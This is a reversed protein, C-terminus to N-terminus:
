CPVNYNPSAREKLAAELEVLAEGQRKRYAQAESERGQARLEDAILGCCETRYRPDLVMANELLALADPARETLAACGARFTATANSPHRALWERYLPLAAAAGDREEILEIRRVAEHDTLRGVAAAHEVSTFVAASAAIA